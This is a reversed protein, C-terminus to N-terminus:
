SKVVKTVALTVSSESGLLRSAEVRSARDLAITWADYYRITLTADPEAALPPAAYVRAGEKPDFVLSSVDGTYRGDPYLWAVPEGKAAAEIQARLSAARIDAADREARSKKAIEVLSTVAEEVTQCDLTLEYAAKLAALNAAELEAIRALLKENAAEYTRSRRDSERVKAEAADARDRQTIWKQLGKTAGANLREVEASPPQHASYPLGCGIQCCFDQRGDKSTVHSCYAGIIRSKEPCIPCLYGACVSAAEQQRLSAIAASVDGRTVIAEDHNLADRLAEL